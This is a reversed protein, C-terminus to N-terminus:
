MDLVIGSKEMDGLMNQRLLAHIQYCGHSASAIIHDLEEPSMKKASEMLSLVIKDERNAIALTMVPCMANEENHNPDLFM